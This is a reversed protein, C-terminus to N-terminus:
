VWEAPVAEGLRQWELPPLDEKVFKRGDDMLWSFLLQHTVTAVTELRLSLRICPAEKPRQQLTAFSFLLLM